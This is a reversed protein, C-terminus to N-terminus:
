QNTLRSDLTAMFRRFHPLCTRLRDPNLAALVLYSRRGKRYMRDIGCPRTADELAQQVLEHDRRELDDLAPFASQNLNTGFVAALTERDALIWTEMCSVMLQCQDNEVQLPISWAKERERVHNWAHPSNPFEDTNQSLLVDESDILLICYKDQIPSLHATRFMDFAQNRGGGAVISPMRGAYGARELLKRFGERCRNDGLKDGGGEVYLRVNM